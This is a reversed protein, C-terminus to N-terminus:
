DPILVKLGDVCDSRSEFAQGLIDIQRQADEMRELFSSNPGNGM